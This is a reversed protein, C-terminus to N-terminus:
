LYDYFQRKARAFAVWGVILIAISSLALKLLLSSAPPTNELLINRLALVIAAMPNFQYINQYEVPIM